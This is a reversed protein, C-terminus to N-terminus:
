VDLTVVVCILRVAGDTSFERFKSDFISADHADREDGRESCGMDRWRLKEGYIEVHELDIGISHM